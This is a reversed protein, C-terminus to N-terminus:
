EWTFSGLIGQFRPKSKSENKARDVFFASRILASCGSASTVNPLYSNAVITSNRLIKALIGGIFCRWRVDLIRWRQAGDSKVVGM